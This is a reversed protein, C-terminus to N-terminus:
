KVSEVEVIYGGSARWKEGSVCRSVRERERESKETICAKCKVVVVEGGEGARRWFAM